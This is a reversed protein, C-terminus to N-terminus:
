TSPDGPTHGISPSSLALPVDRGHRRGKAIRAGPGSPVAHAEDSRGQARSGAALETRVLRYVAGGLPAASTRLSSRGHRTAPHGNYAAPYSTERGRMYQLLGGIDSKELGVSTETAMGVRVLDRQWVAASRAHIGPEDHM